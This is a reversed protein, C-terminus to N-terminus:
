LRRAFFVNLDEPTKIRHGLIFINSRRRSKRNCFIHIQKSYHFLGGLRPVYASTLYNTFMATEPSSTKREDRSESYVPFVYRVVGVNMTHASISCIMIGAKQLKIGIVPKM